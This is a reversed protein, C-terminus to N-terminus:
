SNIYAVFVTAMSTINATTIERAEVPLTRSNEILVDKAMRLAELKHQKSNVTQVNTNRANELAVTSESRAAEIAVQVDVMSQQETTLAM